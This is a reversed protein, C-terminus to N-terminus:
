SNRQFELTLRKRHFKDVNQGMNPFYRVNHGILQPQKSIDYFVSYFLLLIKYQYLFKVM